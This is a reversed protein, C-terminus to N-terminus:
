SWATGCALFGFTRPESYLCPWGALNAPLRFRLDFCPYRAMRSGAAQLPRARDDRKPRFPRLEAAWPPPKASDQSAHFRRRMALARRATVRKEHRTTPNQCDTASALPGSGCPNRAFPLMSRHNFPWQKSNHYAGNWHSMSEVGLLAVSAFALRASNPICAPGGPWQLPTLTPPPAAPRTRRNAAAPTAVL